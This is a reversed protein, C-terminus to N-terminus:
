LATVTDSVSTITDATVTISYFNNTSGEHLFFYHYHRGIIDAYTTGNKNLGGIFCPETYTLDLIDNKTFANSKVSYVKWGDATFTGENTVITVNLLHQYLKTGAKQIQTLSNEICNNIAEISLQDGVEYKNGNNFESASHTTTNSWQAM